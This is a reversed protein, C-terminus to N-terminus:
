NRAVAVPIMVSGGEANYRVPVTDGERDYLPRIGTADILALVLQQGDPLNLQAPILRFTFVGEQDTIAVPTGVVVIGKETRLTSVSLEAGDLRVAYVSQAGLPKNARDLLRGVIVFAKEASPSPDAEPLPAPARPAMTSRRVLQRAAALQQTDIPFRAKLAEDTVSVKLIWVAAQITATDKAEESALQLLRAMSLDPGEVTFTDDKSPNDKAFDLCYARVVFTQELDTDLYIDSAPELGGGDKAPKGRIRAATMDQVSARGSRLLSGPPLTVQLPKPQLRRVTLQIADGTSGGLSEVRAKVKGHAIAEHLPLSEFAWSATTGAALLVCLLLRHAFMKRHRVAGIAWRHLSCLLRNMVAALYM